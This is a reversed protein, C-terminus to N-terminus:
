VGTQARRVERLLRFHAMDIEAMPEMDQSDGRDQRGAFVVRFPTGRNAEVYRIVSAGREPWCVVLLFPMRTMASLALGARWKKLSVRYTPYSRGRHKVELWGVIDEGRCAAYDVEYWRPLKAASFGWVARLRGIVAAENDRDSESEYSPRVM